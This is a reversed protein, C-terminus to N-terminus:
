IVYGAEDIVDLLTALDADLRCMGGDHERIASREILDPDAAVAAAIKAPDGTRVAVVIARPISASGPVAYVESVPNVPKPPKQPKHPTKATGGIHDGSDAGKHNGRERSNKSYTTNKEFFTNIRLPVNYVASVESVESASGARANMRNEAPPNRSTITKSVEPFGGGGSLVMQAAARWNSM